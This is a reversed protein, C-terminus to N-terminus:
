TIYTEKQWKQRGNKSKSDIQIGAGNELLNVYFAKLKV